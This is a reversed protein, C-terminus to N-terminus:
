ERDAGRRGEGKSLSLAKPGAGRWIDFFLVSGPIGSRNPIGVVWFVIV